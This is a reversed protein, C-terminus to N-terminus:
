QEQEEKSLASCQLKVRTNNPIISEGESACECGHNSAIPGLRRSSEMKDNAKMGVWGIQLLLKKFRGVWFIWWIYCCRSSTRHLYFKQSFFIPSIFVSFQALQMLNGVEQQLYWISISKKGKTLQFKCFFDFRTLGSHSIDQLLIQLSFKDCNM